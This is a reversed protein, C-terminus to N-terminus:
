TTTSARGHHPRHDHHHPPAPINLPNYGLQASLEFGATGQISLDYAAVNTAGGASAVAIPGFDGVNGITVSGHIGGNFQGYSSPLAFVSAMTFTSGATVAATTATFSGGSLGTSGDYGAVLNIAGSGSNLINSQISINQQALLTLDNGSSYAIDSGPDILISGSAEIIVNGSTVAASVDGSSESCTGCIEFDSAPDLLWTGAQGHPARTDVTGAVILQGKGSTEVFGGNGGQAGGRARISGAFSTTGDSWVAVQGGNGATIASADITAGAAVSTAAANPLPGAGHFNGGVAVSGGGADGAVNIMAGSALTVTDGLVAVSGGTSGASTGSADLTGAVNTGGGSASLVIQGNVNAVSTAEVIGTTNIVNDLVGKAAQATLLVRGGAATITGSNSVLASAGVPVADVAKTVAFSLLNDGAFDVTFTKAGALVVTGLDAAVMGANQVAGAALVVSGGSGATIRGQNVITANPNGPIAFNYNGSLFDQDHLGITSLLVGAASIQATPGMFIGNPNILWVQGNASLSGYIQSASGGTVRNLAIASASPQQFAVSSGTPISFGTWNIIASGTTQKIVTSTASPHAITAQGATVRAGTLQAEAGGTTFALASLVAAILCRADAGRGGFGGVM